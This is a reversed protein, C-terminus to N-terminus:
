KRKITDLAKDEIIYTAYEGNQDYIVIIEKNNKAMYEVEKHRSAYATLFVIIVSVSALILIRSETEKESLPVFLGLIFLGSAIIFLFMSLINFMVLGIEM